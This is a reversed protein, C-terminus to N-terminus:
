RVTYGRHELYKVCFAQLGEHDKEQLGTNNNALDIGFLKMNYSGMPEADNTTLTMEDRGNVRHFQITTDFNSVLDKNTFKTKKAQPKSTM